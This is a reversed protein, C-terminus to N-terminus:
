IIRINEDVFQALNDTLEGSLIGYVPHGDELDLLQQACVAMYVIRENIPTRQFNDQSFYTTSWWEMRLGMVAEIIEPQESERLYSVVIALLRWKHEEEQDGREIRDVIIELVRELFEAPENSEFVGEITNCFEEEAAYPDLELYELM